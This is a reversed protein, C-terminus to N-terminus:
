DISSQCIGRPEGGHLHKIVVTRPHVVANTVPVVFVEEVEYDGEIHEDQTPKGPAQEGYPDIAM